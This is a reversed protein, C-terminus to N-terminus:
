KRKQKKFVIMMKYKIIRILQLAMFAMDVSRINQLRKAKIAVELCTFLTFFIVIIEITVTVTIKNYATM